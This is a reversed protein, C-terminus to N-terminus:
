DCESYGLWQHEGVNARTVLRGPQAHQHQFRQRQCQAHKYRERRVHHHRLFIKREQAAREPGRQPHEDARRDDVQQEADDAARARREERHEDRAATGEEEREVDDVVGPRDHVHQTRVLPDDARDVQVEVEDVKEDVNELNQTLRIAVLPSM